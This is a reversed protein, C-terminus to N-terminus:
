LKSPWAEKKQIKQTRSKEELRIIGRVTKWETKWGNSGPKVVVVNDIYSKRFDGVIEM